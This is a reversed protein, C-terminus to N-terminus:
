LSTSVQFNHYAYRYTVTSFINAQKNKRSTTKRRACLTIYLDPTRVDTVDHTGDAREAHSVLPCSCCARSAALTSKGCLLSSRFLQQIPRCWCTIM